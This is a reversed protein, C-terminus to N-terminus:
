NPDTRSHRPGSRPGSTLAANELSLLHMFGASQGPALHAYRETTKITSHGLLSQVIRLPAGGTTLISAFSHRLEHWKIRRLGAKKQAAWLVEHFQGPQLKSGDANCFVTEGPHRIKELAIALEDTLDVRRHRNSKPSKEISLWKPASRRITIIRGEFDIDSWRIARQEGMRAGTHLAFLLLARAWDDRAASLLRRAEPPQYWDFSSEPVVVDPLEPMRALYGWKVAFGLLTQLTTRINKVSKESLGKRAKGRDKRGALREIRKQVAKSKTSTTARGKKKYGRERLVGFFGTLAENSIKALPLEGLAPLIHVRLHMDKEMLTTYSNVGRRGGGTRFKP